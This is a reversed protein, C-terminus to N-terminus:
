EHEPGRRPKSKRRAQRKQWNVGDIFARVRCEIVGFDNMSVPTGVCKHHMYLYEAYAKATQPVVKNAM